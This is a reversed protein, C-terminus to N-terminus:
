TGRNLGSADSAPAKENLGERVAAVFGCYFIFLITCALHLLRFNFYRKGSNLNNWRESLYDDDKEMKKSLLFIRALILLSCLFVGAVVIEFPNQLLAALESDATWKGLEYGACMTAVAGFFQLVIYNRFGSIELDKEEKTM